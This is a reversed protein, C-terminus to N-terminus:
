RAPSTWIFVLHCRPAYRSARSITGKAGSPRARVVADIASALNQSLKEHDFSLKGVPIHILSTKDVRFEVRGAKVERITKAIDFTITGTKPNPM